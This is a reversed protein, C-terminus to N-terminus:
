RPNRKRATLAFWELVVRKREADIHWYAPTRQAKQASIYM